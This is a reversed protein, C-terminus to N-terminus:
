AAQRWHMLGLGFLGTGLLLLTGPEPVGEPVVLPPAGPEAFEGSLFCCDPLDPLTGTQLRAGSTSYQYLVNSDHATFWLTGDAPDFALATM